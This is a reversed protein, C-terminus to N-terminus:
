VAVSVLLTTPSQQNEAVDGVTKKCRRAPDRRLNGDLFYSDGGVSMSILRDGPPCLTRSKRPTMSSAFSLSAVPDPTTTLKFADFGAYLAHIVLM